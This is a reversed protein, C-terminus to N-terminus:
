GVARRPDRPSRLHEDPDHDKRRRAARAGRRERAAPRRIASRAPRSSRAKGRMLRPVSAVTGIGGPNTLTFSAGTLDDAGLKGDRAKAVLDDYRRRFAAFDLTAADKVVPVMLFRTGDKRQADVALGLNIAGEVKSPVDGDRRFSTTIAPNEEAARVLAFAILHTFSIKEDRGAAKLAANLESRRAELSGVQLTRFEDRDSYDPRQEMYGVLSAPRGKLPTVKAGPPLPRVPNADTRAAVSAGDQPTAVGAGDQPTAVRAGNQRDARSVDDLLILGDPGSGSSPRSRPARAGRVPARAAVSENVTQRRRPPNAPKTQAPEAPKASDSAEPGRRRSPPRRISKALVAGVAVTAGEGALVAKVVGSRPPVEVDVKDTTVDVLTEGPRDVQGPKVRWEVISGETVSSAWRPLTVKVITQSSSGGGEPVPGELNLVTSMRDVIRCQPQRETPRARNADTALHDCWIRMRRHSV